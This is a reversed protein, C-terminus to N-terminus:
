SVGSPSLTHVCFGLLARQPVCLLKKQQRRVKPPTEEKTISSTVSGGETQEM